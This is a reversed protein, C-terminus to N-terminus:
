HKLFMEVRGNDGLEYTVNRGQWNRKLLRLEALRAVLGSIHTLSVSETWEAPLKSQVDATLAAPTAKGDSVARLIIRMDERESPVWDLVQRVLFSTEDDTLAAPATKERGELIPNEIEAFRMGPETLVIASDVFTALAYQCIAGRYVEGGRTVRAVFQSLFRDRSASNGRRPLGTALLEDRKRGAEKDWQEMLSGITGADDAMRDSVLDYKPWRGEGASATALWRCAVKMPFLRNVQGFVRDDANGSAMVAIAAAPSAEPAVVKSLRTFALEIDEPPVAEDNQEVYGVVRQRRKTKGDSAVAEDKTSTKKATTAKGNEAAEARRHGREVIEAPTAGRELALQNFAAIELFSEFSQYKDQEVLRKIDAFLKDSLNIAFLAM